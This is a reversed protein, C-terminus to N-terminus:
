LKWRIEDDPAYVCDSGTTISLRLFAALEPSVKGIEGIARQIAKTVRLRARDADGGLSRPRGGLGQSTRLQGEIVEKDARLRARQETDDDALTRALDTEIRKLERRYEKRATADLVPDGLAVLRAEADTQGSTSLEWATIPVHARTLLHHIFSFGVRDPLSVARGRYTIRWRRGVRKFENNEGSAAASGPLQRRVLELFERVVPALEPEINFRVTDERREAV